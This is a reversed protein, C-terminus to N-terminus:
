TRATDPTRKAEACLLHWSFSCAWTAVVVVVGGFGGHLWMPGLMNCSTFVFSAGSCQSEGRVTAIEAECAAHVLQSCVDWM